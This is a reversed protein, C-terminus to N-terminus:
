KEESGIYKVIADYVNIKLKIKYHGDIKIEQEDDDLFVNNINTIDFKNDKIWKVLVFNQTKNNPNM